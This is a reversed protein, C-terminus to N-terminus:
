GEGGGVSDVCLIELDRLTQGVASDLCERLYPGTNFVPLILSVEPM